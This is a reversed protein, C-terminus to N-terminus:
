VGPFLTWNATVVGPRTAQVVGGGTRYGDRDITLRYAGPDFVAVGYHGQGDTVTSGGCRWPQHGEACLTELLGARVRAGSIPRGTVSSCVTGVLSVTTRPAGPVDAASTPSPVPPASVPVCEATTAEAQPAAAVTAPTAMPEPMAAASQSTPSVAGPTRTTESQSRAGTTACATIAVVMVGALYIPVKM